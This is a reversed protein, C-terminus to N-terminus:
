VVAHNKTQKNAQKLNKNEKQNKLMEPMMSSDLIIDLLVPGLKESGISTYKYIVKM